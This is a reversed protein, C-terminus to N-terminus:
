TRHQATVADVETDVEDESHPRIQQQVSNVSTVWNDADTYSNFSGQGRGRGGRGRFGQGGRKTIALVEEMQQQLVSIPDDKKEEEPNPNAKDEDVM